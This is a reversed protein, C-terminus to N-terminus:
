LQGKGRKLKILSKVKIKTSHFNIDKLELWVFKTTQLQGKREKGNRQEQDSWM